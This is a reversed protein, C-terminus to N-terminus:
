NPYKSVGVLYQIRKDFAYNIAKFRESDQVRALNLSLLKGVCTEPDDWGKDCFGLSALSLGLDSAILRSFLTKTVHDIPLSLKEKLDYEVELPLFGKAAQVMCKVTSNWINLDILWRILRDERAEISNFKVAQITILTM